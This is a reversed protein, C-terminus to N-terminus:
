TYIENDQLNIVIQTSNLDNINITTTKHQNTITINYNLITNLHEYIRDDLYVNQNNLNQIKM